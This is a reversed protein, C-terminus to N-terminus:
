FGPARIKFTPDPHPRVEMIANLHPPRAVVGIGLLSLRYPGDFAM